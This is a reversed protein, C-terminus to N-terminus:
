ITLDNEEQMGAAKEVLHSLVAAAAAVSIGIFLLFLSAILVGPHNRNLFLLVIEALFFYATDGAALWSIWKLNRANKRSVSRDEGINDAIQWGLGLVIYCPVASLWLVIMWSWFAALLDEGPYRNMIGVGVAPLAYGYLVAGCVAMGALIAKLWRSLNKQSM